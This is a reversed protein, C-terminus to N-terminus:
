QKEDPDTKANTRMECKLVETDLDGCWSLVPTVLVGFTELTSKLGSSAHETRYKENLVKGKM